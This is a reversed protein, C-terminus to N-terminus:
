ESLYKKLAIVAPSNCFKSFFSQKVGLRRELEANEKHLLQFAFIALEHQCKSTEYKSKFDDSKKKHFELDSKLYRVNENLQNIESNKKDIIERLREIERDFFNQKSEIRKNLRSIECNKENSLIQIYNEHIENNEEQIQQIRHEYQNELFEQNEILKKKLSAIEEDKRKLLESNCKVEKEFKEKNKRALGLEISKKIEIEETTMRSIAKREKRYLLHALFQRELLEINKMCFALNSLRYSSCLTFFILKSNNILITINQTKKSITPKHLSTSIVRNNQHFIANRNNYLEKLAIFFINTRSGDDQITYEMKFFDIIENKYFHLWKLLFMVDNEKDKIKEMTTPTYKSKAKESEIIKQPDIAKCNEKLYEIFVKFGDRLIL